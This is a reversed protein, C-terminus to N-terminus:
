KDFSNKTKIWIRKVLHNNSITDSDEYGGNEQMIKKMVSHSALNNEHCTILLESINFNDWAYECILKLCQSAYGKRRESPRISYAVNGGQIKLADTLHHRLNLIGVVNGNQIAWFTTHPSRGESLNKELRKNETEKKYNEFDSIDFSNKVAGIDYPTPNNQFDKLCEKFSNWYEKTPLILEM